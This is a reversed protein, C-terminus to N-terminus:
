KNGFKEFYEKRLDYDQQRIKKIEKEVLDATYHAHYVNHAKISFHRIENIETNKRTAYNIAFFVSPMLLILYIGHM